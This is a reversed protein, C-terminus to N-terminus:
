IKDPDRLREDALDLRYVEEDDDDYGDDIRCHLESLLLRAPVQDLMWGSLMDEKTTDRLALAQILLLVVRTHHRFQSVAPDEDVVYRSRDGWDKPDPKGVDGHIMANRFQRMHEAGIAAWSGSKIVRSMEPTGFVTPWSSEALARLVVDRLYPIYVGSPEAQLVDRGMAGRPRRAGRGPHTAEVAGEYATWVLTLVIVGALHKEALEGNVEEYEAAPSCMYGTNRIDTDAFVDNLSAALHLNAAVAGWGADWGTEALSHATASLRVIHDRLGIMAGPPIADLLPDVARYRVEVRGERLAPYDLRGVAGIKLFAELPPFVPSTPSQPAIRQALRRLVGAMM